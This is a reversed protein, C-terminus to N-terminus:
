KAAGQLKHKIRGLRARERALANREVQLVKDKEQVLKAKLDFRAEEAFVRAERALVAEAKKERLALAKSRVAYDQESDFITKAAASVRKSERAIANEIKKLGVERALLTEERNRVTEERNVLCNKLEVATKAVAAAKVRQAEIYTKAEQLKATLEARLTEDEKKTTLWKRKEEYYASTIDAIGSKLTERKAILKKIEINAARKEEAYKSLFENHAKGERSLVIRLEASRAAIAEAIKRENDLALSGPQVSRRRIM